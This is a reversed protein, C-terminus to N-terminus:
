RILLVDGKLFEYSSDCYEVEAIWTFVAPNLDEGKFKGPWGLGEINPLFNQRDYVLEGWRNYIQLYSIRKLDASGYLTFRDNKGDGNPSFANPSYVGKDTKVQTTINASDLCGYYDTVIIQYNQGDIPQEITPSLCNQCSLNESPTWQISYPFDSIISPDLAITEGCNYEIISPLEAVQPGLASSISISDMAVCGNSNTVTISYTGSQDAIISNGTNSNSWLYEVFSDNVVLSVEEGSGICLISDGIIETDITERIVEISAQGECGESSVILDYVGPTDVIIAQTNAGNSWIYSDLGADAILTTATNGWECIITDGTIATSIQVSEEEIVVELVNECGQGDSISVFHTGASLNEALALTEGNDWQYQLPLISEGPSVIASGNALGCSDTSLVQVTPPEPFTGLTPLAGILRPNIDAGIVWSNFSLDCLVGAENPSNVVSLESVPNPSNQYVFVNAWYLKGDPGTKLGGSRGNHASEGILTLINTDFDFQKLTKGIYDSIYLKSGDPSFATGYTWYTGDDILQYSNSEITGNESNFIFSGVPYTAQDINRGPAIILRGRGDSQPFFDMKISFLDEQPLSPLLANLDFQDYYSIGSSTVQYLYLVPELRDGFFLWSDKTNGFKNITYISETCDVGDPTFEINKVMSDVDGLPNTTTGNGPFDLDIASYYIKRPVADEESQVTILFYRNCDSPDLVIATGYMASSSGNLGNGNPMPNHTADIVYQGDSYLIVAGSSPDSVIINNEQLGLPYRIENYPFPQNTSFDFRIGARTNTTGGGLFWTSNDLQGYIPNFVTLYITIIISTRFLFTMTQRKNVDIPLRQKISASPM